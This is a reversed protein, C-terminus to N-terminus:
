RHQPRHQVVAELVQQDASHTRDRGAQKAQYLASDAARVLADLTAGHAPHEAIGISVTVPQQAVPPTTPPTSTISGINNLHSSIRETIRRRLREATNLGASVTTDPLLITFEEGGFRGILDNSRLEAKLTEALIRLVDDGVLHGYDDNVHKFHDLDLMLLSTHAGLRNARFLHSRAASNWAESNLLGTKSDTRAKERLQRLLVCRHLVLTIGMILLLAAPWAVLAWALLIGLGITAAELSYDSPSGLAERLRSSRNSAFVAGTVLVTNTILFVLGAAVVLGFSALNRTMHAFSPGGVLHLFLMAADAALVTAAASFIQRHVVHKRVRWWRYGYSTAIVTAALGAPLLLAAAFMWVSNLDIHPSGAFHERVREIPRSMETYLIGCAMLIVFPLIQDVGLRSTAFATATVAAALVDVALVYAILGRQTYQWLSWRAVPTWRRPAHTVSSEDTGTAGPRDVSM